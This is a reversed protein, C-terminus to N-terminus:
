VRGHFGGHFHTMEELKGERCATVDDAAATNLSKYIKVKAATLVSAANQGCRPTILVTVKNDVLYQAAQIGAGSQAQAAPNVMVTEKGDEWFLFFPARSLVSCVNTKNEDLPIAIKM